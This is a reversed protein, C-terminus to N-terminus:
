GRALVGFAISALGQMVLDVALFLGLIWLSDVPWGAAIILGALLTVLGGIVMWGWGGLPRLRFGVWMRFCGAAILAVALFFTLISSALVPNIFAFLGAGAYFAGSMIWYLVSGWNKVQFAHALNLLGGILMILGVYYVSAVTAMLLNGFAIGGCMILLVGLAVFWVWKRAVAERGAPDFAQAM